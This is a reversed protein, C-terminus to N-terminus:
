HSRGAGGGRRVPEDDDPGPDGAQGGRELPPAPTRVVLDDDELGAVPDAPLQVADPQGPV